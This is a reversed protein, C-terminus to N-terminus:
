LYVYVSCLSSALSSSILLIFLHPIIIDIHVDHLLCKESKLTALERPIFLSSIYHISPTFDIPVPISFFIFYVSFQSYRWNGKLHRYITRRHTKWNNDKKKACLMLRREWSYLEEEAFFFVCCWLFASTILSSREILWKSIFIANCM